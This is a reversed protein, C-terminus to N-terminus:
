KNGSPLRHITNHVQGVAPTGDSAKLRYDIAMCWTPAIDRLELFVGRNDPTLSASAVALEHEGYHDSGYNATRKLSWARVRYRKTDRALNGDLPACFTIEIGKPRARLSLPICVPKNTYRVRYFGGPATQNGAWAFMGCAYLQGNTPHFRGRMVGTPFIPMPLPCIGGQMQGDLKEHPVIFVKGAGYSLELLSGKLPGWAESTVWLLEGPSRDFANTIWCLPQRMRGDATDTVDHYGFMNGYFGGTQVWNIRNKPTWHGEQDSVFFTGDANLCVGNAARFGTALIDTRLGDHSVRLLTGHHPVVASLGHRASKAYYFNGEADTQLGMAFEHFHETVQHDSNFNEYYDTEGDGNLDHLIVIQDRCGVYIEGNWVKLGLPQFLGSAIRRWTLGQEPRDVGRVLWVDGDWTCVAAAKGDDLFDFGTFRMQCSWPNGAPHTLVDIAFPGDDAGLVPAAALSEPWRPPGGEIAENLATQPLDVDKLVVQKGGVSTWLTFQLPEDGAPIRLRLQGDELTWHANAIDPALGAEFKLKSEGSPQSPDPEVVARCKGLPGDPAERLRAHEGPHEAVAVVMDNPRPGIRFSRTFVFSANSGVNAIHPIELIPTQGVSYSLVIRGNNDYLGNFHGWARPLPGYPKDDRGRLRVDDFGGTEPNAWGLGHNVVRLEGAIRPHVEHRGNFHIGNYDIFAPHEDDTKSWVAAVRLTDHDFIMWDRGQSVGGSGPDLRVAIGKYAFNSGDSGIEYTNILSRGYDMAVWPEHTNPAPGRTDGKPLGALYANDVAVFQTPNHPKLYAERVYHIVAYKDQPVMSSQPAMLGFGFTLTRYIGYPDAGNKFRGSAFALAAPLSGPRDVTGHCNACVRQYIAEGREFVADGAESLLGAHDLHQEYEPLPPSSFLGPPPRLQAVRQRGFESIEFLYRLLDLFDQRGALQNALGAPMASLPSKEHEDIAQKDIRQLESNGDASRLVLAKPLDEVLLGVITHGDDTVVRITEFGKRISKSPMLVSDVLYADDVDAPPRTLDPGVAPRGDDPLHCLACGVSRQHFLVAGRQADGYKRAAAALKAPDERLLLRELPEVAGATPVGPALWLGLLAPLLAPGAFRRSVVISSKKVPRQDIIM